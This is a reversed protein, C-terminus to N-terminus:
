EIFDEEGTVSCIKIVTDVTWPHTTIFYGLRNVYHWGSVIFMSDGDDGEVLTWIYHDDQQKVFLVEQGYTEFLLGNGEWVSWSANRDLHNEIPQYTKEWDDEDIQLFDEDNQKIM